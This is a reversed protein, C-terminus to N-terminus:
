TQIENESSYIAKMKLTIQLKAIRRGSQMTSSNLLGCYSYSDEIMKRGQSFFAFKKGIHCM